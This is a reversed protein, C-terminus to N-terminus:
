FTSSPTLPNKPVSVLVKLVSVDMTLLNKKPAELDCIIDESSGNNVPEDDKIIAKPAAPALDDTEVTTKGKREIQIALKHSSSDFNGTEIHVVDVNMLEDPILRIFNAVNSKDAAEEGAAASDHTSLIPKVSKSFYCCVTIVGLFLLLLALCVFSAISVQPVFCNGRCQLHPPDGGM